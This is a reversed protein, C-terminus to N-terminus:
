DLVKNQLVFYVNKNRDHYLVQRLKLHSVESYSTCFAIKCADHFHLAMKPVFMRQFLKYKILPIKSM